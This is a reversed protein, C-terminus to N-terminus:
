SSIIVVQFLLERIKNGGCNLGVFGGQNWLVRSVEDVAKEDLHVLYKHKRGVDRMEELGLMQLRLRVWLWSPPVLTLM